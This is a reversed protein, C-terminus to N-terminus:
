QRARARHALVSLAGKTTEDRQLEDYLRYRMEENPGRTVTEAVVLLERRCAAAVVSGISRPDSVGDDLTVANVKDNRTAAYDIPLENMQMGVIINAITGNGDFRM